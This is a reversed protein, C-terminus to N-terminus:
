RGSSPLRLRRLEEKQQETIRRSEVAKQITKNHTWEPLRRERLYPLIRDYQKALATAFYWAVMMRIYYEDSRLEAIERPYRDEFLDELYYRMRMGIAFRVTYVHESHLWRDLVPSLEETHRAFCSPSLQDCTAWNDVYPLFREVEALCDPFDRIGSIVFAHLQNEDFTDHPLVALFGSAEGSRLLQKAYARLDPTLICIVRDPDIGPILKLQFERYEPDELTELRARIPSESM